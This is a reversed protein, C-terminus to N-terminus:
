SSHQPVLLWLRYLALARGDRLSLDLQNTGIVLENAPLPIAREIFLGGIKEFQLTTSKASRNLRVELGAPYAFDSRLLLQLGATPVERLAFEFSLSNGHKLLLASDAIRNGQLDMYTTQLSNAGPDAAALQAGDISLLVPAESSVPTSPDRERYNEMVLLGTAAVLLPITILSKRWDPLYIGATVILFFLVAASIWMSDVFLAPESTLLILGTLMCTAFTLASAFAQRDPTAALNIIAFAAYLALFALYYHSTLTLCMVIATGGVIIGPVLPMFRLAAYLIVALLLLALPLAAPKNALRNLLAVQWLRDFESNGRIDTDNADDGLSWVRHEVADDSYVILQNYGVKNISMSRSHNMIHDAFGGVKDVPMVTTQLGLMLILCALSGGLARTAPWKRWTERYPTQDVASLSRLLLALIACGLFALPFIRELGALTLLAGAWFYREKYLLVLGAALFGFWSLRLYSGGIWDAFVLGPGPLFLLVTWFALAVPIRWVPKVLSTLLFIAGLLIAVDVLPLYPYIVALPALRILPTGYILWSPAVNFGHDRFVEQWSGGATLLNNNFFLIDGAFQQWRDPEMSSKIRQGMAAWEQEPQFFDPASLNRVDIEDPLLGQEDLAVASAAYIGDYGLEAFYKGGIVYHYIDHVHVGSESDGPKHFSWAAVCCLAVVAINILTQPRFLQQSLEVPM